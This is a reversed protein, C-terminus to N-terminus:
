DNSHKCTNGSPPLSLKNHSDGCLLGSTSPLLWLFLLVASNSRRLASQLHNKTIGSCEDTDSCNVEVLDHILLRIHMLLDPRVWKRSQHYFDVLWTTWFLESQRVINHGLKIATQNTTRWVTLRTVESQISVQTRQDVWEDQILYVSTTDVHLDLQTPGTITCSGYALRVIPSSMTKSTM